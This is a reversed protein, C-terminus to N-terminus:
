RLSEPFNCFPATDWVKSIVALGAIADETLSQPSLEGKKISARRGQLHCTVLKYSIFILGAVAVADKVTFSSDDNVKPSHSTEKKYHRGAHAVHSSGTNRPQLCPLPYEPECSLKSPPTTM